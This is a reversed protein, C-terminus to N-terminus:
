CDRPSPLTPAKEQLRCPKMLARATSEAWPSLDRHRKNQPCSTHQTLLPEWPHLPPHDRSHSPAKSGRPRLSQHGLVSRKQRTCIYANSGVATSCTSFSGQCWTRSGHM